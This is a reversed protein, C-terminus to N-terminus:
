ECEREENLTQQHNRLAGMAERLYGTYASALSARWLEICKKIMEKLRYLNLGCNTHVTAAILIYRCVDDFCCVVNSVQKSTDSDGM